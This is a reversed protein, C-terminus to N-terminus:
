DSRQYDRRDRLVRLGNANYLQGDHWSVGDVVGHRLASTSGLLTILEGTIACRGNEVPTVGYLKKLKKRSDIVIKVLAGGAHMTVEADPKLNHVRTRIEEELRGKFKGPM